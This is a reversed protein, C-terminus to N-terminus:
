ATKPETKLLLGLRTSYNRSVVGLSFLWIPISISIFCAVLPAAAELTFATMLFGQQALCSTSKGLKTSLADSFARAPAQEKKSCLMFALDKTNDFVTCKAIQMFCTQVGGVFVTLGLASFGFPAGLNLAINPYFFCIFFCVCLMARLIPTIYAVFGWSFKQLLYRTLILPLVTGLIGTITTVMGLYQSFKEPEPYYNGLTDKWLVDFLNDSFEFMFIVLALSGFYPSKAYQLLEKFPLQKKESTSETFDISGAKRYLRCFIVMQLLGVAIVIFTLIQLQREWLMGGGWEFSNALYPITSILPGIFIGGIDLSFLPFFRKGQEHSIIVSAFKWFLMSILIVPWTDCMVYFICIPWYEVMLIFCKLYTPLLVELYNVLQTPAFFSQYPRLVFVYTFYSSLFFLTTLTYVKNFSLVRMMRVLSCIMLISLPIMAWTKLFPIMEAGIEPTTVVITDKLIKLVKTNFYILSLTFFLPYFLPLENKNLSLLRHM